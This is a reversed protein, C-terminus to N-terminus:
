IAKAEKQVPTKQMKLYWDLKMETAIQELEKKYEAILKKTLKAHEMSKYVTPRAFRYVGHKGLVGLEEANKRYKEKDFPKAEEKKVTKPPRGAKKPPEIEDKKEEVVNVEIGLKALEEKLATLEEVSSTLEITTTAKTEKAKRAM